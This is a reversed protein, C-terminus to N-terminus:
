VGSCVGCQFWKQCIVGHQPDIINQIITKM